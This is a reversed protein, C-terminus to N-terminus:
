NKIEPYANKIAAFPTRAMYNAIIADYESAHRFAEEVLSARFELPTCGDYSRLVNLVRNYDRPNVISIVRPYNKASARIMCSGGIDIRGRAMEPTVGAKEIIEEFDYLSCIVM